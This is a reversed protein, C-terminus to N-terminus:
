LFSSCRTELTDIINNIIKNEPGFKLIFDAIVESQIDINDTGKGEIFQKDLYAYRQLLRMGNRLLARNEIKETKRVTFVYILCTAILTVISGVLGSILNLIVTNNCIDM